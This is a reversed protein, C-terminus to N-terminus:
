NIYEEDIENSLKALKGKKKLQGQNFKMSEDFNVKLNLFNAPKKKSEVM